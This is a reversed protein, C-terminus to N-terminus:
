DRQIVYDRQIQMQLLTFVWSVAQNQSHVSTISYLVQYAYVRLSCLSYSFTKEGKWAAPSVSLFEPTSDCQGPEEQEPEIVELQTVM